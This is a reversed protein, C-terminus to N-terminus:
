RKGWLHTAHLCVTFHAGTSIANIKAVADPSADPIIVSKARHFYGMATNSDTGLEAPRVQDYGKASEFMLANIGKEDEKGDDEKGDDAPADGTVRMDVISCLRYNQPYSKIGDKRKAEQIAKFAATLPRAGGESMVVPQNSLNCATLEKRVSSLPDIVVKGDDGDGNDGDDEKTDVDDDDGDNDDEPEDVAM